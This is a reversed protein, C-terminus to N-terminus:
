RRFLVVCLPKRPFRSSHRCGLKSLRNVLHVFDTERGKVKAFPM